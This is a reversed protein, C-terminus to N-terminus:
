VREEGGIGGGHQARGLDPRLRHQLGGIDVADIVGIRLLVGFGLAEVAQGMRLRDLAAVLDHVRGSERKGALRRQRDDHERDRLGTRDTRNQAPGSVARDDGASQRAEPDLNQVRPRRCGTELSPLVDHGCSTKVDVVDLAAHLAGCLRELVLEAAQTGATGRGGHQLRDLDLSVARM